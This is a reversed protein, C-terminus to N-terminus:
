KKEFLCIGSWLKSGQPGKAEPLFSMLKLFFPLRKLRGATKFLSRVDIPKWGYPIFFDPGDPPGFKFPAGAQSLHSGIKKQLMKLLGPSMMDLVWRQFSPPVALDQALAGAEEPSLYTIFGESVILVRKARQGLRGFLERRAGINSLDMRIREVACAPKEGALIEEKYNLIEPLDVEIWQLSSPLSMRYPRADLGAALNIVMDVGEKVQEAVFQDFLYTRTVWTWLNKNGDPITNAIHEGRAGALRRAFPDRFLADPRDTERARYIAAWCATDSINRILPETSVQSQDM